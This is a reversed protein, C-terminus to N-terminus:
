HTKTSLVQTDHWCTCRQDWRHPTPGPVDSEQTSQWCTTSFYWATRRNFGCGCRDLIYANEKPRRIPVFDSHGGGSIYIRATQGFGATVMCVSQLEVFHRLSQVPFSSEHLGIFYKDHMEWQPKRLIIKCWTNQWLVSLVWVIYNAM